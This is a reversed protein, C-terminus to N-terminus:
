FRFGVVRFVRFGLEESLGQGMSPGCSAFGRMVMQGM